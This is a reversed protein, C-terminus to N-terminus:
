LRVMRTGSGDGERARKSLRYAWRNAVGVVTEVDAVAVGGREEIGGGVGRDEETRSGGPIVRSLLAEMKRGAGITVGIVSDEDVNLGKLMDCDGRCKVKVRFSLVLLLRPLAPLEGALLRRSCESRPMDSRYMGLRAVELIFRLRQSEMFSLFVVVRIAEDDLSSALVLSGRWRWGFWCLLLLLLLVGSSGPASELALVALGLVSVVFVEECCFRCLTKSRESSKPSFM